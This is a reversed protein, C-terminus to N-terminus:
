VGPDTGVRHHGSELVPGDLAARGAVPDAYQVCRALFAFCVHLRVRKHAGSPHLVPIRTTSDKDDDVQYECGSNNDQHWGNEDDDSNSKTVLLTVPSQLKGSYSSAAKIGLMTHEGLAGGKGAPAETVRFEDKTHVQAKAQGASGANSDNGGCHTLMGDQVRYELSMTGDDGIPADHGEQVQLYM